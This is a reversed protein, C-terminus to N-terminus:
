IEHENSLRSITLSVVTAGKRMDIVSELYVVYNLFQSLNFVMKCLM